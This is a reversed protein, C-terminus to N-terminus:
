RRGPGEGPAPDTAVQIIGARALRPEAPNLTRARQYRLAAGAVDGQQHLLVDGATVLFLCRRRPELAEDGGLGDLLSVADAWRRDVVALAGLTERATLRVAHAGSGTPAAETLVLVEGLRSLVRARRDGEVGGLLRPEFRMSAWSEAVDRLGAQSPPGGLHGGIGNLAALRQAVHLDAMASRLALEARVGPELDAGHREVLHETAKWANDWQQREFCIESLRELTPRFGPNRAYSRSYLGLARDIQGAQEAARGVRHYRQAADPVNIGAALMAELAQAAKDWSGSGLAASFLADLAGAHTPESALAADLVEVARAARNM